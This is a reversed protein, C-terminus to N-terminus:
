LSELVPTGMQATRLTASEKKTGGLAFLLRKAPVGSTTSLQSCRSRPLPTGEDGTEQLGAM